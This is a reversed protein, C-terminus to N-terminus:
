EISRKPSTRSSPFVGEAGYRHLSAGQKRLWSRAEEHRPMTREVLAWFRPGHNMHGLHAVEHAALYELVFDPAFILRWSYSLVGTSSCSGWRSSQDRMSIRRFNVGLAAAARRSAAELDHKAERKLFDRLRRSVHAEDGAVCLLSQGAAQEIWVTGRVGRRHEIRHEAGRLPLVAGHAFPVADPL